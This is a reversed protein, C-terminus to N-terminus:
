PLKTPSILKIEPLKPVQQKDSTCLLLFVCLIVTTIIKGKSTLINHIAALFMLLRLVTNVNTETPKVADCM